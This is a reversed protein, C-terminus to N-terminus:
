PRNGRKASPWDHTEGTVEHARRCCADYVTMAAGLPTFDYSYTPSLRRSAAPPGAAEAELDRHAPDAARVIRALRRSPETTLGFEEAVLDVTCLEGRHRRFVNRSYKRVKRCIVTVAITPVIAGRGSGSDHPRRASEPLLRSDAALDDDMRGDALGPCGPTARLRSLKEISTTAPSPM